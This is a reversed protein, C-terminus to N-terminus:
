VFFLLFNEEGRFGTEHQTDSFAEELLAQMEEGIVIDLCREQQMWLLYRTRESIREAEAACNIAMALFASFSKEKCFAYESHANSQKNERSQEEGRVIKTVEVKKQTKLSGGHKM